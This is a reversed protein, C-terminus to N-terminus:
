VPLIGRVVSDSSHGPDGDFAEVSVDIVPFAALDLGRPIPFTTREAELPGLSVLRAVGRDILWVEYYFGAGAAPLGTLDVEISRRGSAETLVATGEAQIDGLPKLAVQGQVTPEGPGPQGPSGSEAPLGRLSSIGLGVLVGVTAAATLLAATGRWRPKTPGTTVVPPERLPAPVAGLHRPSEAPETAAAPETADTADTTDTGGGTHQRSALEGAIQDWVRDPPTVLRDQATVSRGVTVVTRLEDLDRRCRPCLALHADDAATGAPEGLARLALDDPDCHPV